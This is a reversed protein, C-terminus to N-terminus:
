TQKTLNLLSNGIQVGFKERVVRFQMEDCAALPPCVYEIIPPVNHPRGGGQGEERAHMFDYTPVKTDPMRGAGGTIILCKYDERAPILQSSFFYPKRVEDLRRQLYPLSSPPGLICFSDYQQIVFEVALRNMLFSCFHTATDFAFHNKPEGSRKRFDGNRIFDLLFQKFREVWVPNKLKDADSVFEHFECFHWKETYARFQEHFAMRLIPIGLYRELNDLAPNIKEPSIERGLVVSRPLLHHNQTYRQMRHGLMEADPHMTFQFDLIPYACFPPLRLNDEDDVLILSANKIKQLLTSLVGYAPLPNKPLFYDNFILDCLLIPAPPVCIHEFHVPAGAVEALAALYADDIYPKEAGLGIRPGDVLAVISFVDGASTEDGEDGGESGSAAIRELTLNSSFRIGREECILRVVVQGLSDLEKGIPGDRPVGPFKEALEEGLKREGGSTPSVSAAARVARSEQVARWDELCKKRNIKGSSTKSIFQPPVFHVEVWELGTAERVLRSPEASREGEWFHPDEILFMAKETGLTPDFVALSAIRGKSSPFIEGLAFDLDNLLVKRGGINALDQKRGTIVVEGEDVFGIDGTAYYGEEDRIDAGDEYAVISHPSRVFLEGSKERVETGPIPRGCSVYRKEDRELVRYGSSKTVAFVNEAMGYCTSVTTPSAGTAQMFRELTDAYTPESCSIWHRMTPFPGAKGSKAMVEFGFNPMYCVTGGHKQIAEFLLQPRHVWTMPDISVVRTGLLLPMALCAIFGMDHYLPLWSVICDKETLQLVQNYLSAHTRVAEFSFRIPKKFGTTGSSLQLIEGQVPFVLEDDGAASDRLGDVFHCPALEGPAHISLAPDCLLAGIGCKSVSDRVSDRWYVKSIKSTPYQLILPVRGAALVGLWSVVLEPGTRFILGVSHSAPVLQSVIEAVHRISGSCHSLDLTKESEGGFFSVRPLRSAQFMNSKM